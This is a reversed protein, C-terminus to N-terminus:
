GEQRALKDVLPGETSRRVALSLQWARDLEQADLRVHAGRSETRASAAVAVAWGTDVMNRLELAKAIDRNYVKSGDRARVHDLETRLEELEVQAQALGAQERVVGVHRQMLEQVRAWGQLPTLGDGAQGARELLGVVPSLAQKVTENSAAQGGQHLAHRAAERGAIAGFVQNESLANGALRNAGHIGGVCEGAAFVGTVGTRTRTDIRIGGMFYHAGPAVVRLEADTEIGLDQLLRQQMQPFEDPDMGRTSIYLGGSDTGGGAALERAMVRSMVDRTAQKLEGVGYRDWFDEGQRNLLRAGKPILIGSNFMLGRAGGPEVLVTPYHQVFEMDVLEIGARLALGYGDGTAEFPNTNLAYVQSGGGTALIVSPATYVRLEGTPAHYALAGRVEGDEVLLDTVHTFAHIPIERKRIAKLLVRVMESGVRNGVHAARAYSHGALWGLHLKSADEEQKDFSVGLDAVYQVAEGAQEALIRVLERDSIGEGSRVIDDAFVEANDGPTAEPLIACFSYHASLTGGSRQPESKTLIAVRAGEESAALAARLGAGGSGVIIVDYQERRLEM